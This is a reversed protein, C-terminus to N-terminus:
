LNLKSWFKKNEETNYIFYKHYMLINDKKPFILEYGGRPRELECLANNVNDDIEKNFLINDQPEKEKRSFPIIGILNLTDIFLNTKDPRELNNYVIMTPNNNIEVLLPEFNDTILIDFGLLNFFSQDSLNLRDNEETLNRYVSIISKIIIDKIKERIDSWEINISKLFNQYMFINYINAGDDNTSNPKIYKKNDINVCINTLHIYKNKVSSENLNFKESAIRACGEKYFYIRM